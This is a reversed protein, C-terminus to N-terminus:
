LSARLADLYSKFQEDYLANTSRMYIMDEVGNVKQEIPTAVSEEMPLGQMSISGVIVIVISIVM